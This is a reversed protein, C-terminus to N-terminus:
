TPVIQHKRSWEAVTLGSSRFEDVISKWEERLGSKAMRFDGRHGKNRIPIIADEGAQNWTPAITRKGKTPELKIKVSIQM